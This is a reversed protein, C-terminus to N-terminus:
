NGELDGLRLLVQAITPREETNDSVCDLGLLTIARAAQRRCGKQILKQDVAHKRESDYSSRAWDRIHNSAVSGPVTVKEEKMILQLIVVGLSYIDNPKTGAAGDAIVPDTYGESFRQLYEGEPTVTGFDTLKPTFDKDLLINEPKLDRYILSNRHLEEIARATGKIIKLTKSWDLEQLKNKVNGNKMYPYVLYFRDPAEYYGTLRIINPHQLGPLYKIEAVFQTRQQEAKNRSVKVAVKQGNFSGLYVCGFGGRDIFNSSDFRNKCVKM